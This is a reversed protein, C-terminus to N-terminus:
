AHVMGYVAEVVAGLRTLRRKVKAQLKLRAQLAGEQELAGYGLTTVELGTRVLTRKPLDTM